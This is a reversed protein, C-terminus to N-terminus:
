SKGPKGQPPTAEVEEAPKFLKQRGKVLSHGAPLRDGAHVIQGEAAFSEVAVLIKRAAV